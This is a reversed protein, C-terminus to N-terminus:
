HGAGHDAAPAPAPEVPAPAPAAPAAIAIDAAPKDAVVKVHGALVLDMAKAVPIHVRNALPDAWGYGGTQAAMDERMVDLENTPSSQLAPTAPLHRVKAEALPSLVPEEVFAAFGALLFWCFGFAVVVAIVIAVASQYVVKTDIEADWDGDQRGDYGAPINKRWLDDHHTDAM